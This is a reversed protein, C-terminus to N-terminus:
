TTMWSIAKGKDRMWTPAALNHHYRSEPWDTYDFLCAPADLSPTDSKLMGSEM